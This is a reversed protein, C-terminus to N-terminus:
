LRRPTAVLSGSGIQWVTTHRSPLGCQQLGLCPLSNGRCGRGVWGSRQGVYTGCTVLVFFNTILIQCKAIKIRNWHGMTSLDEARQERKEGGKM